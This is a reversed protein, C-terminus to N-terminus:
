GVLVAYDLSHPILRKSSRQQVTLMLEANKQAQHQYIAGLKMSLVIYYVVAFVNKHFLFSSSRLVNTIAANPCIIPLM